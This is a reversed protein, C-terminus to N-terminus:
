NFFANSLGLSSKNFWWRIMPPITLWEASWTRSSRRKTKKVQIIATTDKKSGKRLFIHSSCCSTAMTSSRSTKCQLMASPDFYIGDSNSYKASNMLREESLELRVEVRESKINWNSLLCFKCSEASYHYRIDCSGDNKVDESFVVVRQEAQYNRKRHNTGSYHKPQVNYSHVIYPRASWAHLAHGAATAHAAWQSLTLSKSGATYSKKQYCCRRTQIRM